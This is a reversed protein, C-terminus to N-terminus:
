ALLARAVTQSLRAGPVTLTGRPVKLGMAKLWIEGEKFEYDRRLEVVGYDCPFLGLNDISLNNPDMNKFGVYVLPPLPGHMYIYCSTAIDYYCGGGKVRVVPRRNSADRVGYVSIYPKRAFLVGTEEDYHFWERLKTQPLPIAGKPM